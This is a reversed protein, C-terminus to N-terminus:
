EVWLNIYREYMSDLTHHMENESSFRMMIIGIAQNAGDFREVLDGPQKYLLSYFIKEELSKAYTIGRMIGNKRSHIVHSALCQDPFVEELDGLDMGMASKITLDIMDVGTLYKVQEPILNGGNRPGIELLYIKDEFDVIVELNVAGERFNLLGLAKNILAKAQNLEKITFVPPFSKGVPVLPNCQLDRHCNMLCSFAMNGDVVFGDGGLIFRYKNHIVEELIVKGCRSFRKAREFSDSFDSEPTLISVGKSGSSDVPKIVANCNLSLFYEYAGNEDTFSESEPTLFGNTKLFKRFKDKRCLTVVSEYPNSPLGLKNGVFAATPAAPDSAYAVVGDIKKKEAIELVAMEDTTSVPIYEDAFHQGPNDTLYDCLIVYLGLSKAHKIANVQAPSGGLM